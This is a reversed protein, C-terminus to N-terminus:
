NPEAKRHSEMHIQYNHWKDVHDNCAQPAPCCMAPKRGKRLPMLKVEVVDGRAVVWRPFEGVVALSPVFPSLFLVMVLLERQPYWETSLIDNSRIRLPSVVIDSSFDASSRSNRGWYEEELTLSLESVRILSRTVRDCARNWGVVGIM